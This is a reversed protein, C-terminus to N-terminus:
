YLWRRFQWSHGGWDIETQNMKVVSQQEMLQLAHAASKLNTPHSSIDIKQIIQM